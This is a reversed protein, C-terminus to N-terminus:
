SLAVATEMNHALRLIDSALSELEAVDAFITLESGAGIVCMVRGPVDTVPFIRVPVPGSTHFSASMQDTM